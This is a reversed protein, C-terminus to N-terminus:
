KTGTAKLIGYTQLLDNMNTTRLDMGGTPVFIINKGKLAQALKLKVMNDGGSGALARAQESVGKASAKAETLTAQAVREQSYYYADSEITRQKALGMSVEIAKSVAGKAVELERRMQERAAETESILREADQEAVKKDKIIQEYRDNFKHEGLLVQTILVGEPNLQANLQALAEDGKLFRVNADYYEESKLENLVDRILTRSIPRVLRHGVTQTSNGSLALVTHAKNPDIQWAVTVNVSIDNGDVTKFRLSDDGTRDGQTSERVMALNQIAVDYTYWDNIIPPFFSTTGPAYPTEVIGKEGIIGVKNVRVGVETPGTSHPTCANTFAVLTAFIVTNKINMIVM